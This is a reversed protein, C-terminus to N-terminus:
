VVTIYTKLAGFSALTMILFCLLLYPIGVFSPYFSATLMAFFTFIILKLDHINIHKRETKKKPPLSGVNTVKSKLEQITTTILKPSKTFVGPLDWMYMVAGKVKPIQRELKKRTTNNDLKSNSSTVPTTVVDEAQMSYYATEEGETPIEITTTGPEAPKTEIEDIIPSSLSARFTPPVVKKIKLSVGDKEINLRRKWLISLLIFCVVSLILVLADPIVHRLITGM